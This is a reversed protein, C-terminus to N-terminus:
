AGTALHVDRYTAIRKKWRAIGRETSSATLCGPSSPHTNERTDPLTITFNDNETVGFYVGYMAKILTYLRGPKVQDKVGM